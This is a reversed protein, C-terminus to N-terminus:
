RAVATRGRGTVLSAAMADIGELTPDLEVTVTVPRAKAAAREARVTASAIIAEIQENTFRISSGIRVHDVQRSRAKRAWFDGSKGLREAAEAPTYLRTTM